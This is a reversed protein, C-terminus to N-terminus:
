LFRKLLNLVEKFADLKGKVYENSLDTFDYGSILEIKREVNDFMFKYAKQEGVGENISGRIMELHEDSYISHGSPPCCDCDVGHRVFSAM